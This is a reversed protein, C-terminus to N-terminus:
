LTRRLLLSTKLLVYYRKLCKSRNKHHKPTNELRKLATQPQKPRHFLTLPRGARSILGMQCRVSYWPYQKEINHPFQVAGFLSM